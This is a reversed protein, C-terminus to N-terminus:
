TEQRYGNTFGLDDAFNLIDEYEEKKLRQGIVPHGVAEHCPHYQSMLSLYVNGLNKFLWKLIQKSNEIEGPLVLHRVLIGGEAIDNQLRLDGVQRKMELLAKKSIEPYDSVNCYEGSIESTIYKADPMYIDVIGKLKKLTEIREYGSSNYVIPIKLGKKRAKIIAEKIEIAFQTPTVLNINHAGRNQLELMIRSLETVTIDWGNNFHSIPYNQCFICKLPCGSFFITGSGNVGSIPPEEGFHLNYSAIRLNGAGCLGNHVPRSAACNRPCLTCGGKEQVPAKQSVPSASIVSSLM